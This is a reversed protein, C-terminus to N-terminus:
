PPMTLTMHVRVAHASYVKCCSGNAVGNSLWYPDDCRSLPSNSRGEQPVADQGLKSQHRHAIEGLERRM